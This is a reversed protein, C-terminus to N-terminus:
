TKSRQEENKQAIDIAKNFEMGYQRKKGEEEMKEIRKQEDEPLNANRNAKETTKEANILDNISNQDFASKKKKGTKKKKGIATPMKKNVNGLSAAWQSVKKPSKTASIVSFLAVFLAIM